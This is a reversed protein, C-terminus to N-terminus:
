PIYMYIRKVLDITIIVQTWPCAKGIISLDSGHSIMELKLLGDIKCTDKVKDIKEIAYVIM